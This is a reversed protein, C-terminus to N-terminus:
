CLGTRRLAGVLEAVYDTPTGPAIYLVCDEGVLLEIPPAPPERTPMPELVVEVVAPPSELDLEHLLRSRWRQLSKASVGAHAAFAAQTLGSGAHERVLERWHKWRDSQKAM